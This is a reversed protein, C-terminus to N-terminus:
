CRWGLERLADWGVPEGGLREVVELVSRWAYRAFEMAVWIEVVPVSAARRRVIARVDAIPAGTASDVDLGSPDWSTLRALADSVSHGGLAFGAYLHTVDTVMAATGVAVQMAAVRDATPGPAAFVVAWDKAIRAVGDDLAASLAPNVDGRIDIKSMVTIDALGITDSLAAREREPDGYSRVIEAGGEITVDSGFAAHISALPSRLPPLSTPVQTISSGVRHDTV